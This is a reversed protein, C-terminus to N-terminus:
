RADSDRVVALWGSRAKELTDAAQGLRQANQEPTSTASM